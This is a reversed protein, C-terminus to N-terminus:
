MIEKIAKTIQEESPTLFKELSPSFPVPVDPACIRKIPVDLYDFAEENVVTALEAAVGCTKHGEDIIIVRGTKMVSQIITEKDLPVLTRPDVVEVEIGEERSLKEAVDVAKQVMLSTAVITVDKGERKVAAKGIPVTYIEEPVHGKLPYLFKHECFVVPNKDRISSVLLGKADYPNSPMVVKLGPVHCVWAHLSQSHQAASSRGAGINVRMVMPIEAKGGFMYRMKAGQNALQDMAITIFDMFMLEVVPRLGTAASGVAAGTIAAESIPTDRVRKEGFQEWLGKTVKFIGGFPGVDEGMVFVREDNEMEQKLAERLAEVYLIKRM